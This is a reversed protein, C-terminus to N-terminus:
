LVSPEHVRHQLLPGLSFVRRILSPAYPDKAYKSSLSASLLGGEHRLPELRQGTLATM